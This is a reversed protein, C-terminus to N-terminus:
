CGTSKADHRADDDELLELAGACVEAFSVTGRKRLGAEDKFM